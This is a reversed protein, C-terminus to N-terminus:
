TGNPMDEVNVPAARVEMSPPQSLAQVKGDAVLMLRNAGQIAAPRHAVVIRTIPLSRIVDMVLKENEGDLNATGEDLFLVSPRRYLARALLIRQKQGGSLTSGLDGVLTLYGMPMRIIDDHIRASRACHEIWDFDAEPDFFAINDAVTGAFLQDDQMVVGIRRRFAHLGFAALPVGDILLEGETPPYLGMLVKCLTSKGGGSPGVFAVFEGPRIDLTVDKMVWPEHDAYRFAAKRLTVAGQLPRETGIAQDDAPEQEQHIVDALRELHLGLMRFAFFQNVLAIAAGSFQGRYSQFALLMGLTMDGAIVAKAGLYLVLLSEAGSLLSNLVGGFIGMKQAKLGNNVTDAHANQWLSHRDQERGFLKFARAGRITELFTSQEKAGLQIGEDALRRLIPFTAARICFFVALAGLVIWTLTPAYLFMVVLTIIAMLGDLFVAIIGGTFLGQVPGLSGFRSLIDGLQRKEFWPVPLRLLHRLLNSTMQFSLVTAFHMSVFSRLLGTAMRILLMLAMGIALVGLLDVDGKAIADDIVMQNLMPTLIAFVQLVLSLLVLQVMSPVFGSARTWLDSLRVREVRERKEFQPTPTLELAVGTFRKSVEAWSHRRLGCAPDHVEVYRATVSKLVVYHAM